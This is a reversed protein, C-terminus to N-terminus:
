RHAAGSTRAQAAWYGILSAGGWIDVGADRDLFRRTRYGAGYAFGSGTTLTGLKAYIGDRTILPVGGREFRKLAKELANPRPPELRRAKEERARRLAEARSEQASAIASTGIVAALVVISLRATSTV